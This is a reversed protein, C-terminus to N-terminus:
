EGVGDGEQELSRWEELKGTGSEPGVVWRVSGVIEETNRVMTRVRSRKRDSPGQSKFDSLM